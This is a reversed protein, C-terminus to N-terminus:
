FVSVERHDSERVGDTLRVRKETMTKFEKFIREAGGLAIAPFGLYFTAYFPTDYFAYDKDYDEEPPKGFADAHDLRIVRNNPVFVDCILVNQNVIEDRTNKPLYAPLYDAAGAVELFISIRNGEIYPRKKLRYGPVYKQVAQEAHELAAVLAEEDKVHEKLLLHITDNMMIPPEAPNLILITKGHKAGGVVEIANNTTKIFEDINARTAPGASKSAITAVIEANEVQYLQSVTHIMPITAQGGCTLMNVNGAEIHEMLNVSPVTLPGIAAPTLDVVQKGHAKLKEAHVKHGYASTADFVIDALESTELFGDM